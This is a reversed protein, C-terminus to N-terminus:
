AANGWESPACRTRLRRVAEQRLQCVRAETVGLRQGIERLTLEEGCTLDVITQLRGPLEALAGRLREAQRVADLMADPRFTSHAPGHSDVVSLSVRDHRATRGRAQALDATSIGLRTAIEEPEPRRGLEQGLGKEAEALQRALRRQGRTLQDNGRLEDLMAGMARQLAYAEFAGPDGVEGHALAQSLGLYGAGILDDIDVHPPLRKKMRAAMKRVRDILSSLDFDRSDTM